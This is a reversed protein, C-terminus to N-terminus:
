TKNGYSNRDWKIRWNIVWFSFFFFFFFPTSSLCKFFICHAASVSVGYYFFNFNRSCFNFNSMLKILHNLAQKSFSIFKKRQSFKASFWQQIMINRWIQFLSEFYVSKLWATMKFSQLLLSKFHFIPFPEVSPIDSAEIHMKLKLYRM